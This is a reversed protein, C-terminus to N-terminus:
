KSEYYDPSLYCRNLIILNIIATSYHAPLLFLKEVFRSPTRQGSPSLFCYLLAPCKDTDWGLTVNKRGPVFIFQCGEYELLWTELEAGNTGTRITKVFQFGIGLSEIRSRVNNLLESM